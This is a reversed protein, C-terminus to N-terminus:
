SSVSLSIWRMYRILIINLRLRIQGMLFNEVKIEPNYNEPMQSPYDGHGQVSITYIYDSGETSDLIKAIEGTLISDKAWGIPNYEIDSM